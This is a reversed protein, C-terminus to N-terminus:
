GEDGLVYKYYILTIFLIILTLIISLAAGYGFNLNSFTTQYINFNLLNTGQSPGGQTLAYVLDFSKFAWITRLSLGVFLVPKLVPLTIYFFRKWVGAGAIKAAEYYQEPITQLGALLLIAIFSTEKWVDALVMMNLAMFSRGLWNINETVLGLQRLLINLAGFESNYIWKWMIGNVVPPVAWPILLLVRLYAKGFFDQNLLLAILLALVLEIIVAVIVFYVTIWLSHWFSSQNLLNIYNGFGIFPKKPIIINYKHFSIYISYIIPVTFVFIIFILSPSLLTFLHKRNKQKM